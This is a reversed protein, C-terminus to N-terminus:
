LWMPNSGFFKAPIRFLPAASGSAKSVTEAEPGWYSGPDKNWAMNQDYTQQHGLRNWYESAGEGGQHGLNVGRYRLGKAGTRVCTYVGNAQHWALSLKQAETPSTATLDLGKNLIAVVTSDPIYANNFGYDNRKGSYISPNAKVADFSYLSIKTCPDRPRPKLEFLGKKQLGSSIM